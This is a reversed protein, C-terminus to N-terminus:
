AAEPFDGDETGQAPDDFFNGDETGQAPDDDNQDDDERKSFFANGRAQDDEPLYVVEGPEYVEGGDAEEPAQAWILPEDANADPSESLEAKGEEDDIVTEFDGDPTFGIELDADIPDGDFSLSPEYPVLKKTAGRVYKIGRDSTFIETQGAAEKTEIFVLGGSELECAFTM